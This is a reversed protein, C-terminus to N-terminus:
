LLLLCAIIVFSNISIIEPASAVLQIYFLKSPLVYIFLPFIDCIKPATTSILNSPSIGLMSLAKFYLSLLLSITKSTTCCIPSPTILAIAISKVSPNFLPSSTTSVPLDIVTGTPFPVSPLIM